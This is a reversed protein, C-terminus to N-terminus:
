RSRIEKVLAKPTTGLERKVLSYFASSSRFGCEFAVALMTYDPYRSRRVADRFEELRFGNIFSFFRKGAERNIVESLRHRTEGMQDALMGLTLEPDLYAKSHEIHRYLKDYLVRSEETGMGSKEYKPASVGEKGPSELPPCMEEPLTGETREALVPQDESLLSFLFVFLVAPLSRGVAASVQAFLSEEPVTLHILSNLLYIGTYFVVLAGLWSLTNGSHISSVRDPLKRKHRRLLVLIAASYFLRSLNKSLSWFFSLSILPGNGPPAPAGPNEGFRIKPHISSPEMLIYILWIIFPLLHLLSSAKLRFEGELLARVYLWLAPGVLFYSLRTLPYVFRLTSMPILHPRLLNDLISLLFVSLVLVAFAADPSKRNQPLSFRIIGSLSWATGMALMLEFYRYMPYNYVIKEKGNPPSAPKVSFLYILSM